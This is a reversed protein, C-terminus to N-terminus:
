RSADCQRELELKKAIANSSQDLNYAKIIEDALAEEISKKTNFSKAYSGQIMMKMAFDVRRQPACEVAKPYKAGGYEITTIEERPAANEIAKVLVEVPNKKVRSEIITLCKEMIKYKGVAKGCCHGSSTRHKKGKHGPVMIKNMMREVVNSKTKWFMIGINRGGTRPIIVPHLNIYDKVGPDDVKIASTDWKNFLMIKSM